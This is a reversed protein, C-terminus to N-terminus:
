LTYTHLTGNACPKIHHRSCTLEVADKVYLRANGRVATELGSEVDEAFCLKYYFLCRVCM